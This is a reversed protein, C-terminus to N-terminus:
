QLTMFMGHGRVTVDEPNDMSIDFDETHVVMRELWLALLQLQDGLHHMTPQYDLKVTKCFPSEGPWREAATWLVEKIADKEAISDGVSIVNIRSSRSSAVLKKGFSKRLCKLMTARKAVTFVDVGEEIQALCADARKINERAYFVSIDLRGLLEALDLGPLFRKASTLVWPRMALTVIAVQGLARAVTLVARLTSAHAALMHNFPSDDPLYAERVGHGPTCPLVVSQLFWTPFLTDDWDFIIVTDGPPGQRPSGADSATGSESESYFSRDDDDHQLATSLEAGM